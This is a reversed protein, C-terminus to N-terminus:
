DQVAIYRKKNKLAVEHLYFSNKEKEVNIVAAAQYKREGITAEESLETKM